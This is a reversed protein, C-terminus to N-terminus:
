GRVPVLKEAHRLLYKPDLPRSLYAAVNKAGSFKARMEAGATIVIVPVASTAPGNLLRANILHGSDFDIGADLVILDPRAEDPRASGGELGLLSMAGGGDGTEAVLFGKKELEARILAREAADGDIVLVSGRAPKPGPLPIVAEERHLLAIPDASGALMRAILGLLEDKKYPKPMFYVNMDAGVSEGILEQPLGSLIVVPVLALEPAMRVRQLFTGGGGAPFQFDSIVLDPPSEKAMSVAEVGDKAWAVQYGAASLTHTLIMAMESDDEVLLVHLAAM